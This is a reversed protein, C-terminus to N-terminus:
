AVRTWIYKTQSPQVNNHPQGGGKSRTTQVGGSDEVHDDSFGNVTAQRVFRDAETGVHGNRYGPYENWFDFSLEPIESEKLIHTYEGYQSNVTKVWDPTASTVDASVGVLARGQCDQQWQGFGMYTAPNEPRSTIISMGIPFLLAIQQTLATKLMATTVVSNDNSEWDNDLPVKVKPINNIRIEPENNGNLFLGTNAGAGIFTHGGNPSAQYEPAQAIGTMVPNAKSVYLNLYGEQTKIKEIEDRSYESAGYNEFAIEWSNTEIDPQKNTNPVEAGDKLKYIIGNYKVYSTANYEFSSDWEAVGEQFLYKIALDQKYEIGNAVESPPIEQQEWGQLTKDVDLPYEKTGESAWLNKVNPKTNVLSM